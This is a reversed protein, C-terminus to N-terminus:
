AATLFTGPPLLGWLVAWARCCLGPFAVPSSCFKHQLPVRHALACGWGQAAWREGEHNQRRQLQCFAETFAHPCQLSPPHHLTQQSAGEEQVQM